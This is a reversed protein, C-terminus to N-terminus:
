NCLEVNGYLGEGEEEKKVVESRLHNESSIKGETDSWIKATM